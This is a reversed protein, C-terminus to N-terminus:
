TVIKNTELESEVEDFSDVCGRIKIMLERNELELALLRILMKIQGQNIGFNMIESIIQRCKASDLADKERSEGYMKM